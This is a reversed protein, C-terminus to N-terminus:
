TAREVAKQIARRAYVRTLEARYEASAHIDGMTEIGEAAHAAAAAIADVSPQQGKLADEVGTARTTHDGAGTIAVRVDAISGDAGLTVVAAVGVVAYGSAPNAFKVYASGTRDLLTRFRVETLLEDEALDTTLLGQFFQDAVVTREGTPGRLVIVANLALIAAPLDAGPDAHALSGGITGRNRVQVDGIARAAEQVADLGDLAPSTSVANHTTLAGIAVGGDRPRVGRLEAIKGIDVITGPETLRLKMLPILSHGGALLKAESGHAQLLEIAEDVTEASYYDFSAPIM